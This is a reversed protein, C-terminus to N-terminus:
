TIMKLELHILVAKYLAENKLMYVDVTVSEASQRSLIEILGNLFNSYWENCKDESIAGKELAFQLMIEASFMLHVFADILRPERLYEFSKRRSEFEYKFRNVFYVYYKELFRIFESFFITIEEPSDQYKKLIMGNLRQRLFLKIYRLLGSKLEGTMSTEGTFVCGGRIAYKKIDDKGGYKARSSKDSYSRILTQLNKMKAKVEYISGERNFDDIVLTDDYAKEHLVHMSAETSRVTQIRETVPLFPSFIVRALSTKMMGSSGILMICHSLFHGADTFLADMYSAAGYVLLTSVVEPSGVETIDLVDRIIKGLLVPDAVPPSLSKKSRCDELGGHYFKRSGDERISGWGWFDLIEKVKVDSHRIISSALRQFKKINLIEDTAILREPVKKEIIFFLNVWDEYPIEIIFKWYENDYLMVKVVEETTGDITKIVQKEIVKVFFDTMQTYTNSQEHFLYYGDEGKYFKGDLKVYGPVSDLPISNLPSPIQCIEGQHNGQIFDYKGFTFDTKTSVKLPKARGYEDREVEHIVLPTIMSSEDPQLNDKTVMTEKCYEYSPTESCNASEQTQAAPSDLSEENHTQAPNDTVDEWQNTEKNRLAMVIKLGTSNASQVAPSDLSEENLMQAPSGTVDEWKNTEENFFSMVSKLVM